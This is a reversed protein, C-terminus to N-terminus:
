PFLLRQTGGRLVRRRGRCRFVGGIGEPLRVTADCRGQVSTMDAEVMGDPHPVSAVLHALRGPSPSIQVGLFGAAAPRIGAVSARLHFM